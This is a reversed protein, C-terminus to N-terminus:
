VMSENPERREPNGRPVPGEALGHRSVFALPQKRSVSLATHGHRLLRETMEWSMCADTVSVGYVIDAPDQAVPQKGEKLYSEVM